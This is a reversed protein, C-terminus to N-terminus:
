GRSLWWGRLPVAMTLVFLFAGYAVLTALVQKWIAGTGVDAAGLRQDADRNGNRQEVAVLASLELRQALAVRRLRHGLRFLLTQAGLHQLGNVLEVRAGVLDLCQTAIHEGTGLGGVLSRAAAELQALEAEQIHQIRLAGEQLRAPLIEGRERLGVAEGRLDIAPETAGVSTGSCRDM